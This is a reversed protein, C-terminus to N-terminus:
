TRVPIPFQDCSSNKDNASDAAQHLLSQVPVALIVTFLFYLAMHTVILAAVNIPYTFLFLMTPGFYLLLLSAFCCHTLYALFLVFLVFCNKRFWTLNLTVKWIKIYFICILFHCISVVLSVVVLLVTCSVKMAGIGVDYLPFTVGNVIPEVILSSLNFWFVILTSSLFMSTVYSPKLKLKDKDKCVMTNSKIVNKLITYPIFPLLLVATVVEVAYVACFIGFGIEADSGKFNGDSTIQLVFGTEKSDVFEKYGNSKAYSRLQM